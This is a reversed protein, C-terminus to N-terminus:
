REQNAQIWIYRYTFFIKLDDDAKEVLNILVAVNEHM